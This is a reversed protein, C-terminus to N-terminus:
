GRRKAALRRLGLAVGGSRKRMWARPLGSGDPPSAEKKADSGDVTLRRTAGDLSLSLDIPRVCSSGPVKDCLVKGRVANDRSFMM